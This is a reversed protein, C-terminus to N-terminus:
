AYKKIADRGKQTVVVKRKFLGKEIIYGQRTLHSTVSSVKLSKWNQDKIYQGVNKPSEDATKLLGVYLKNLGEKNMEAEKKDLQPLVDNSKETIYFEYFKSGILGAREIYGGRDLKEISSNSTKSDVGLADTIDAMYKHGNRILELVSIDTENLTVKERKGKNVKFNWDSQGYYKSPKMGSTIVGVIITVAFGIIALHTWKGVSFIGLLETLTLAAM